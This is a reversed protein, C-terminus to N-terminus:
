KRRYRNPEDFFTVDAYGAHIKASHVTGGPIFYHDGKLFTYEKGGIVMDIRGDLVVAWQSAHAHAPVEGDQSFEMFIIQHDESQSLYARVGAFPLDAEPLKKIADPFIGSM